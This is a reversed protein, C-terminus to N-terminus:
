DGTREIDRVLIAGEVEGDPGLLQEFSVTANVPHGRRNHGRV